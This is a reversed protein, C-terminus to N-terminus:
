DSGAKKRAFLRVIVDPCVIAWALFPFFAYAMRDMFKYSSALVAVTADSFGLDIMANDPNSLYFLVISMIKVATLLIMIVISGLARVGGNLTAGVTTLVLAPAFIVNLGVIYLSYPAGIPQRAEPSMIILGRPHPELTVPVVADTFFDAIRVVLSAYPGATLNYLVAFIISWAVFWLLYRSLKM